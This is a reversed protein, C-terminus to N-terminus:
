RFVRRRKASTFGICLPQQGTQRYKHCPSQHAYNLQRPPTAHDTEDGEPTQSQLSAGGVPRQYKGFREKRYAIMIFCPMHSQQRSANGTAGAAVRHHEGLNARTHTHADNTVILEHQNDDKARM